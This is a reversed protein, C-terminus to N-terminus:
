ADRAQSGSQPNARFHNKLQKKLFQRGAESKLFKERGEADQVQRYAEYYILLWPRRGKTSRSEGAQHQDIRRRLDSSYGIYLGEYKDSQLVYVYFM